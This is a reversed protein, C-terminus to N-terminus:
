MVTCYCGGEKVGEKQVKSVSRDISREESRSQYSKPPPNSTSPRLVGQKQLAMKIATNFVQNIGEGTM